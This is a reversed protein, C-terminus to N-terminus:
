WLPAALQGNWAEWLTELEKVKEPHQSALDHQEGIDKTLHYLKKQSVGRTPYNEVNLDYQVLKRNRM